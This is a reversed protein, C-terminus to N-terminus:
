RRQYCIERNLQEFDVARVDGTSELLSLAQADGPRTPQSEEANRLDFPDHKLSYLAYRLYSPIQDMDYSIAQTNSSESQDGVPGHLQLFGPFRRNNHDDSPTQSHDHSDCGEMTQHTCTEEIQYETDNATAHEKMWLENTNTEHHYNPHLDSSGLVAPNDENGTLYAQSTQDSNEGTETASSSNYRDFFRDSRTAM